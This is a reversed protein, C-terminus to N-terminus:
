IVDAFSKEMRRFYFAGSTLVIVMIVASVALLGGPPNTGLIAWRFGEIVGTMPNLGYFIQFRKPLLSSSYVVPSALLWLQILFPVIYQVDRYRVNIASLWLGVGLSTIVALLLFVPLLLIRLTPAYSFYFMLGILILFAITFDVIPSLIGSVPMILRPCYVKQVLAYGSILSATSRSLGEAFLTWPLLATYTFLPYPIGESPVKALTGFFLTFVIMMMLPQIIAWAFGLLTQKYRLKVERWTLFYLLERYEWLERFNVPVWGSLPRIVTVPPTDRGLHHKSVEAARASPSNTKNQGRM